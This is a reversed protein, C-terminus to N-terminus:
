KVKYLFSAFIGEELHNSQLSIKAMLINLFELEQKLIIESVLLSSSNGNPLAREKRKKKLVIGDVLKKYNKQANKWNTNVMENYCKNLDRITVETEDSFIDLYFRFSVVFNPIISNLLWMFPEYDDNLIMKSKLCAIAIMLFPNTIFKEIPIKRILISLLVLELEGMMLNNAFFNLVGYSQFLAQKITPILSIQHLIHQRFYPLPSSRYQSMLRRYSELQHKPWKKGEAEDIDLSVELTDLEIQQPLINQDM